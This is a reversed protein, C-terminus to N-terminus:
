EPACSRRRSLRHSRRGAPGSQCPTSNRYVPEGAILTMEVQTHLLEEPPLAFIDQSLVILDAQKGVSLSGKIREEGSAYASGMTYAYVAEAVTLRQEPYWGGTPTGDPLQRTVAAHIGRFVDPDEVPADSGFALVAGSALLSRWAYAGSCRAGWHREAMAMDSTCHIPQMSAIVGMAGLRPLDQPALLQVHEIRPRLGQTTWNRWHEELADLARNNARDGIAHIAPSWGDAICGTVLQRLRESTTVEIGRNDPEGDYPDFMDATRPGLAGDAFIKIAGLRLFEDGFGGRLGLSHVAQLHQEPVMFNVRLGLEGRRWVHQLAQLQPAGEPTHVGVIGMRHLRETAAQIATVMQATSFQTCVRGVVEIAAGEKLLGTPEGTQPDREFQAGPPDPTAATVGALQLALSNVWAAYGDKSPLFVPNHPTVPDLDQRSPFCGGPWLNRNWGRGLIWEGAKATRAREAVRAVAEQLSPVGDLQVLGLSLGYDVLHIHADTFGPLVARGGADVEETDPGALARIDAGQGVAVIRGCRVAVAQALPLREDMTYVRGNLLILDASSIAEGGAPPECHCSPSNAKL